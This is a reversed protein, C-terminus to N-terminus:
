DNLLFISKYNSKNCTHYINAKTMLSFKCYKTRDITKESCYPTPIETAIVTIFTLNVGVLSQVNNQIGQSNPYSKIM